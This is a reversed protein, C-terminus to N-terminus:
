QRISFVGSRDNLSGENYERVKIVCSDSISANEIKWDYQTINRSFSGGSPSIFTIPFTKGRDLSLDIRVSGIKTSDNIQWRVRVTQNVKYTEGGKPYLINLPKTLDVPKTTDAPNPGAVDSKCGTDPLSIFGLIVMIFFFTKKM